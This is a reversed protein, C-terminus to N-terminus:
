NANEQNSMKSLVKKHTQPGKWTEEGTFLSVDKKPAGRSKNKNKKHNTPTKGLNQM